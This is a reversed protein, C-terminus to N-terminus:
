EPRTVYPEFGGRQMTERAPSSHDPDVYFFAGVRETQFIIGGSYKDPEVLYDVGNGTLYEELRLAEKLKKAVYILELEKDGFYEPERRM